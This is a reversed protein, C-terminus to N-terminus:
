IPIPHCPRVEEYTMEIGVLRKFRIFKYYRTGNRGVASVEAQDASVQSMEANLPRIGFELLKRLVSLPAVCVVELAGSRRIRQALDGADRFPDLDTRLEHPGFLRLLEARQNPVPKHKSIWLIIM